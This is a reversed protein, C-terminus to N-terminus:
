DACPFRGEAANDIVRQATRVARNVVSYYRKQRRRQIAHLSPLEGKKDALRFLDADTLTGFLTEHIVPVPVNNKRMDWALLNRKLPEIRPVACVPYRAQSVPVSGEYGRKRREISLLHDIQGLAVKRPMGLPIRVTFFDGAPTQIDAGTVASVLGTIDPECFLDSGVSRFWAQFDIAHINGWDAYLAVYDGSGNICHNKYGEHRRLYEFWLYYISSNFAIGDATAIPRRTNQNSQAGDTNAEFLPQSYLFTRRENSGQPM